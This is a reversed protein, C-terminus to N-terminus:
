LHLEKLGEKVVVGDGYQVHIGALAVLRLLAPPALGCPAWMHPLWLIVLGASCAQPLSEPPEPASALQAETAQPRGPAQWAQGTPSCLQGPHGPTQGGAPVSQGPAPLPQGGNEARPFGLDRITVEGASAQGPDLAVLQRHHSHGLGQGARALHSGLGQAPQLPQLPQHVAVLDSLDTVPELRGM